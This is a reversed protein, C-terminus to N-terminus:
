DDAVRYTASIVVAKFSSQKSIYRVFRKCGGSRYAVHLTNLEFGFSAVEEGGKDSVFIWTPTFTSCKDLAITIFVDVGEPELYNDHLIQFADAEWVRCRVPLLLGDITLATMASLYDMFSASKFLELIDIIATQSCLPRLWYFKRVNMPYVCEMTSTDLHDKLDDNILSMTQPNFFNTLSRMSEECFLSCQQTLSAKSLLDGDIFQKLDCVTPKAPISKVFLLCDQKCQNVQVSWYNFQDTYMNLSQSHKMKILGRRGKLAGDFDSEGVILTCGDDSLCQINFNIFAQLEVPRPMIMDGPSLKVVIADDKLGYMEREKDTFKNFLHFLGDSSKTFPVNELQRLLEEDLTCEIEEIQIPLSLKSKEVLGEWERLAEHSDLAFSPSSLRTRKSNNSEM